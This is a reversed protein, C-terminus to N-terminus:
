RRRRLFLKANRWHQRAIRLKGIPDGHLSYFIYCLYTCRACESYAKRLSDLKESDWVRPLEFISAVPKHVHCGSVQGLHNIVFFNQLAKCRWTRRGTSYLDALASLVEDTMLIGGYERRLRMLDECLRVLGDRDTIVYEDMAEGISFAGRFDEPVDYSYLCYWVPVGRDLFYRTLDLIEYLNLQSITPSVCVNVGSEKLKEVAEMARKWAGQVGKMYDNKKPDLSDISIAVFDAYRLADIKQAALSGNDYVTVIFHKSAYRLIEEFDNRLLPNGGSFVVDVVGMERLVDLGVKVEKTSLEVDDPEQWVGCSRCRYNCRRTVFWQVHHPRNFALSNKIITMAKGFSMVM